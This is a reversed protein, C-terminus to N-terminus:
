KRITLFSKFTSNEYIQKFSHKKPYLLELRKKLNAIGLGERNTNTLVGDKQKSVSNIVSLLIEKDNEVMSIMIFSPAMYSIGHKFANEILTIFLLPEIPFQGHTISFSCNIKPAIEPHYKLKELSVYNKIFTVEQELTVKDKGSEYLVYRLMDSLLLIAPTTDESKKRALSYINNLANFLFHPNLQNKLFNLEKIIKQKELEEYRKKEKEFQLILEISTGLGMIMLFRILEPMFFHFSFRPKNFEEQGNLPGQRFMGPPAERFYQNLWIFVAMFGLLFLTYQLYKSNLIFSPILWVVNIVYFFLLSINTISFYFLSVPRNNTGTLFSLAPSMIIGLVLLHIIVKLLGRQKIKLM